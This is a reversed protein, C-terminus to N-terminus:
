NSPWPGFRAGDIGITGALSRGALVELEALRTWGYGIELACEDIQDDGSFIRLLLATSGVTKSRWMDCLPNNISKRGRLPGFIGGRCVQRPPSLDLRDNLSSNLCMEWSEFLVHHQQQQTRGCQKEGVDVFSRFCVNLDILDFTETAMATKRAIVLFPPLCFPPAVTRFTQHHHHYNVVVVPNVVGCFYLRSGLWSYVCESVFGNM